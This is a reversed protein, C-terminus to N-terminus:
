FVARKREQASITDWATEMGNQFGENYGEKEEQRGAAFGQEYAEKRIKATDPETYPTLEVGTNVTALETGLIQMDLALTNRPWGSTWVNKGELEIVYKKRM